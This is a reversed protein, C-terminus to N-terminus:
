SNKSPDAYVSNAHKVIEAHLEEPRHYEYQPTRSLMSLAIWYLRAIQDGDRVLRDIEIFTM